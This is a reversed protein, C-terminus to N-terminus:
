QNAAELPAAVEEEHRKAVLKYGLRGSLLTLPQAECPEILQRVRRAIDFIRPDHIRPRYEERPWLYTSIDDKSVFDDGNYLRKLFNFILPKDHLALWRGQVQVRKEEFDFQLPLEVTFNEEEFKQAVLYRLHINEDPILMANLMELHARQSEKEGRLRDLEALHYLGRLVFFLWGQARAQSIVRYLQARAAEWRDELLFHVRASLVYFSLQLDVDMIDVLETMERMLKTLVESRGRPLLVNAMGLAARFYDRTSDSREMLLSFLREARQTERRLYQAKAMVFLFNESHRNEDRCLLQLLTEAEDLRHLELLSEAKLMARAFSEEAPHPLTLAELLARYECRYYLHRLDMLSQAM